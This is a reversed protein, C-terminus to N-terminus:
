MVNNFLQEKVNLIKCIRAIVHIKGLLESNYIIYLMKEGFGINLPETLFHM